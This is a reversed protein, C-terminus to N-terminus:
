EKEIVSLAPGDVNDDTATKQLFVSIPQELPKLAWGKKALLIALAREL